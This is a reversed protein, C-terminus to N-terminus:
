ATRNKTGKFMLHEILHSIGNKEPTEDRSGARYWFGIAASRVHPITETVIRIGNPLVTRQYM